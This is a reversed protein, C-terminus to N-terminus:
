SDKIHMFSVGYWPLNLIRIAHSIAIEEEGRKRGAVALVISRKERWNRRTYELDNDKKHKFTKTVWLRVKVKFNKRLQNLFSDFRGGKRGRIRSSM